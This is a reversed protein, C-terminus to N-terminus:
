SYIGYSFQQVAQLAHTETLELYGNLALGVYTNIMGLFTAAYIRQRGRMNGHDPTAANFLAEMVQHQQENFRAVVQFADHNPAAFWLGLLLRYFTPAADAFGFYTLVLTRLTQPLDGAYAAAQQVRALLPAGREQVLTELVGRKSGFYHYLTPKTIGAASCIDRVGIADYGQAAFLELASKLISARNDKPEM